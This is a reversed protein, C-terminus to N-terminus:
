PIWRVEVVNVLRDDLSVDFTVVLPPVALTRKGFFRQGRLHANTKLQRDIANAADAVVKRNAAHVWLDALKNLATPMWVVTFIM